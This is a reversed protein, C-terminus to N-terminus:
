RPPGYTVEPYMNSPGDLLPADEGNLHKGFFALLYDCTIRWMRAPDITALAVGAEIPGGPVVTLFPVDMFSAHAAGRVTVWYSPQATAHVAAFGAATVARDAECLAIPYGAYDTCPEQGGDYGAAILLAPTTLGSRGVETWNAGDLNAAAQCRRDIRCFELAANGGMSHGLAGLRTLDLRGALPDTGRELRELERVASQLDAVKYDVIAERRRLVEDVPDTFPGFFASL